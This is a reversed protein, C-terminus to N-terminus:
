TNAKWWSRWRKEKAALREPSFMLFFLAPVYLLLLTGSFILGAIISGGLGQWMPNSLTIPILGIITTLSTLLIPQLRQTSGDIISTIFAEGASLNQNIREIILISNNVVIGFLALIGIFAPLSLKLGFLAFVLFVGSIAVPIVTMIIFAKRFSRMQMVLTFLILFAALSMSFYIEEVAEQNTQNAGQSIPYYGKELNLEDDIFKNLQQNIKNAQYGQDVSAKITVVRKYDSRGIQALSPKLQLKGLSSLAIEQGIPTPITTNMLQDLQPNNTQLRYNIEMEQNEKTIKGLTFGNVLTHLYTYVQQQGLGYALLKEQDAEFILRPSIDDSTSSVDSVGPQNNLWAVIAQAKQSLIQLDDGALSLQLDAEGTPGSSDELVLIQGDPYHRYQERLQQALAFSTFPHKKDFNITFLIKNENSSPSVLNASGGRNTQATVYDVHPLTVLETLLKQAAIKVNTQNTGMPLILQMELYDEDEPPFFESQIQGFIPLAFACITTCVIAILLRKCWRQNALLKQLLRRYANELLETKILGHQLKDSFSSALKRLPKLKAMLNSRLMILLYLLFWCLPIIFITFFNKPLFALIAFTFALIASFFCLKQIRTPIQPNLLFIGLPLTLLFAIVASGLIALTVVISLTKLFIGMVGSMLLLPLFAWVTTLNTSILALFFERWVKIGAELPQHNKAYERSLATTVVIANDVLMGLALLLSFLSIFNLSLYFYIIGIFTFLMVMPISTTAIIAEKIGLFLLMVLFVLIATTLINRELEDFTDKIEQGFDTLSRLTFQPYDALLQQATEKSIKANKDIPSGPTKYVNFSVVESLQGSKDMQYASSKDLKDQELITALEGLQYTKGNVNILTSRLSDLDSIQKDIGLTYIFDTTEVKGLPQNTTLNNIIPSLLFPSLGAQAIREQNFLVVIERDGFGATEVRDITSLKELEEKLLDAVRELGLRDQGELTFSWVPFESFDVKTITPKLAQTPLVTANVKQEVERLAYDANINKEFQVMLLSAGDISSAQVKDIGKISRIKDELPITVLEEADNPSSQPLVTSVIIIPLNISPMLERPLNFWAYVGLFIVSLYAFIILRLNSLYKKAWSNKM